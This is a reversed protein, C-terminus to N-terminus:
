TIQACYLSIQWKKSIKNNLHITYLVDWLKCCIFISDLTIYKLPFHIKFLFSISIFLSHFIDWIVWQHTSKTKIFFELDKHQRTKDHIVHMNNNNNCIFFDLVYPLFQIIKRETKRMKKFFHPRYNYYCECTLGSNPKTAVTYHTSFTQM